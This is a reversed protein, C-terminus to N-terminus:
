PHVLFFQKFKDETIPFANNNLRFSAQQDLALVTLHPNASKMTTFLHKVTATVNIETGNQAPKKFIICLSTETLNVSEEHEEHDTHAKKANKQYSVLQYPNGDSMTDM